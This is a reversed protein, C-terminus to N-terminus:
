IQLFAQKMDMTFAVITHLQFHLEINFIKHSLSSSFYLYDNLFLYNLDHFFADLVVRLKSPIHDIKIVKRHPLYFKVNKKM